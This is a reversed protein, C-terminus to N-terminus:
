KGGTWLFPEVVYDRGTADYLRLILEIEQGPAIVAVRESCRVVTRGGMATWTDSLSRTPVGEHTTVSGAQRITLTVLTDESIPPDINFQFFHMGVHPIRAKYIIQQKSRLMTKKLQYSRSPPVILRTSWDSQQNNVNVLEGCEIVLQPESSDLQTHGVRTTPTTRDESTHDRQACASIFFLLCCTLARLILSMM